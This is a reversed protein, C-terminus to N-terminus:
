FSFEQLDTYIPGQPRLKSEILYMANIKIVHTEFKAKSFSETLESLGLNSKVRGLTLHPSFKKREAEFGIQNLNYDLRKQLNTLRKESDKIGIWFVRPSRLNPFAGCDSFEIKFSKMGKVAEFAAKELEPLLIKETEGIFKLTLHLNGSEVWKVKGPLSRFPEVFKTVATKVEDPIKVAYFLRM